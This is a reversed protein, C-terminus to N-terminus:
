KEMLMAKKHACKLKNENLVGRTAYVSELHLYDDWKIKLAWFEIIKLSM